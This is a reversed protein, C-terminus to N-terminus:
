IHCDVSILWADDPMADIYRNASTLYTETSDTNANDMGFWGMEGKAIWYGAETLFAFGPVAEDRCQQVYEDRTLHDFRSEPGEPFWDKYADSKRLAAIRPQNAYDARAQDWSYELSAWYADRAQDTEKRVREAVEKYRDGYELAEVEAETMGFSEYALARAEDYSDSWSKPAREQAAQVREHFRTWPLHQPTAFIAVAYEDWDKRGREEADARAKEINLARIRGGDCKQPDAPEDRNTWSSRGDVLDTVDAGNRIPFKGRWRGGVAWWDWKAQPNRWYTEGDEECEEVERNEDFPELAATLATQVDAVRGPLAVTVTFHSLKKGEHDQKASATARFSKTTEPWQREEWPPQSLASL